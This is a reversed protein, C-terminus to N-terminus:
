AQGGNEPNEKSWVEKPVANSAQQNELEELEREKEQRKLSGEPYEQPDLTVSSM